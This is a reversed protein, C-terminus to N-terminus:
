SPGTGVVKGHGSDPGALSGAERAKRMITERDRWRAWFAGTYGLALVSALLPSDAYNNDYESTGSVTPLMTRYHESAPIHDWIAEVSRYWRGASNGITDPDEPLDPSFYCVIRLNGSEDFM